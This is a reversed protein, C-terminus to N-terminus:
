VLLSFPLSFPVSHFCSVGDRAVFTQKEFCLECGSNKKESRKSEIKYSGKKRFIAWLHDSHEGCLLMVQITGEVTEKVQNLVTNQSM